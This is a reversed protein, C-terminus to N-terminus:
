PGSQNSHIPQPALAGIQLASGVFFASVLIVILAASAVSYTIWASPGSGRVRTMLDQWDPGRRPRWAEVGDRVTRAIDAESPSNLGGREPNNGVYPVKM